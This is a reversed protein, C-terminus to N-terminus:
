DDVCEVNSYEVLGYNVPLTQFLWVLALHFTYEVLGYNM